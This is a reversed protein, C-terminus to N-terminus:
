FASRARKWNALSRQATEMESFRSGEQEILYYEVGGVSEAAEVVRPWPVDGEGILVRFGRERDRGYTIGSSYSTQTQTSEVLPAKGIGYDKCHLSRVRGPNARIFAV